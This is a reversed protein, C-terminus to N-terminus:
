TFVWQSSQICYKKRLICNKVLLKSSGIGSILKRIDKELLGLEEEAQNQEEKLKKTEQESLKLREELAEM